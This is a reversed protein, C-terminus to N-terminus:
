KGGDEKDDAIKELKDNEEAVVEIPVKLIAAISSDALKLLEQARMKEAIADAEKQEQQAALMADLQKARVSLMEAIDAKPEALYEVFHEAGDDSVHLERVSRRGDIQAHDEVIKSSVIPVTVGQTTAGVVGRRYM